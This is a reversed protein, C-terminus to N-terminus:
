GARKSRRASKREPGAIDQKDTINLAARNMGKRQAILVHSRLCIHLKSIKVVEFPAVQDAAEVLLKGREQAGGVVLDDDIVHRHM